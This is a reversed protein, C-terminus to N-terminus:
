NRRYHRLFGILERRRFMFLYYALKLLLRRRFSLTLVMRKPPHTLRPQSAVTSFCQLIFISFHLNAALSHRSCHWLHM